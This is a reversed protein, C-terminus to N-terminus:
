PNPKPNPNSARADVLQFFVANLARVKEGMQQIEPPNEDLVRQYHSKDWVPIRIGFESELKRLLLIDREIGRHLLEMRNLASDYKGVETCITNWDDQTIASPDALLTQLEDKLKDIQKNSSPRFEAMLRSLEKSYQEEREHAFKHMSTENLGYQDVKQKDLTAIEQTDLKELRRMEDLMQVANSTVVKTSQMAQAESFVRKAKTDIRIIRNLDMTLTQKANDEGVSVTVISDDASRSTLWPFSKSSVISSKGWSFLTPSLYTKDIFNQHSENGFSMKIDSSRRLNDILASSKTYDAHKPDMASQILNGCTFVISKARSKAREYKMPDGTKPVTINTFLTNRMKIPEERDKVKITWQMEFCFSEENHTPFKDSIYIDAKAAGQGYKGQENMLDFSISDIRSLDINGNADVIGNDRLLKELHKVIPEGNPLRYIGQPTQTISGEPAVSPAGTTSPTATGSLSPNPDVPPPAPRRFLFADGSGGINM